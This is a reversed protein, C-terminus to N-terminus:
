EGWWDLFVDSLAGYNQEVWSFPDFDAAQVSTSGGSFTVTVTLDVGALGSGFGGVELSVTVVFLYTGTAVGPTLQVRVFSDLGLLTTGEPPVTELAVTVDYANACMADVVTPPEIYRWGYGALQYDSISSVGNWIANPLLFSQFGGLQGNYHSLINLMQSEAIAAFSLRLQSALMVNSNRVRNQKGSMAVFSTHPYGGPSFTRGGPTLTPFTAM